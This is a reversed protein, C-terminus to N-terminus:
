QIRLMGAGSRFRLLCIAAGAVVIGLLTRAAKSKKRRGKTVEKPLAAAGAAAGPGGENAYQNILQDPSMGNAQVARKLTDVNDRLANNELEYKALTAMLTAKSERELVLQQQDLAPDLAPFTLEKLLDLVKVMPLMVTLFMVTLLVKVM